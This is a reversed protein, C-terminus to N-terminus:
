RLMRSVDKDTKIKLVWEWTHAQKLHEYTACDKDLFHIPRRWVTLFFNSIKTKGSKKKAKRKPKACQRSSYFMTHNSVCRYLCYMSNYNESNTTLKKEAYGHLSKAKVRELWKLDTKSANWVQSAYTQVRVVYGVYANLKTVPNAKHLCNRKLFWFSRWAKATRQSFKDSWSFNRSIIEGLDM